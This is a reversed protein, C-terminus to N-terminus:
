HTATKESMNLLVTILEPNQVILINKENWYSYYEMKDYIDEEARYIVLCEELPDFSFGKTGKPFAVRTKVMKCEELYFSTLFAERYTYVEIHDDQIFVKNLTSDRRQILLPIFSTFLLLLALLIFLAPLFVAAVIAVTVDIGGIIALLAAVEGNRSAPRCKQPDMAYFWKM